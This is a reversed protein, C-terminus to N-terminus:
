ILGPETIKSKLMSEEAFEPVCVNAVSYSVRVVAKDEPLRPPTGIRAEEIATALLWEISFKYYSWKGTIKPTQM